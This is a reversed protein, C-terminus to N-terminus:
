AEKLSLSRVDELITTMLHAEVNDHSTTGSTLQLLDALRHLKILLDAANAAPTAAIARDIAELQEFLADDEPSGEQVEASELQSILAAREAMLARLNKHTQDAM